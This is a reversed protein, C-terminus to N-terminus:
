WKPEKFPHIHDPHAEFINPLPTVSTRRAFVFVERSGMQITLEFRDDGLWNVKTRAGPLGLMKKCLLVKQNQKTDETVRFTGNYIDSCVEWVEVSRKAVVGM